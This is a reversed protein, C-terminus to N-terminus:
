YDPFMTSSTGVFSVSSALLVESSSFFSSVSILCSDLSSVSFLEFAVVVSSFSSLEFVASSPLRFDGVSSVSLLAPMTESSTFSEFEFSLFSSLFDLTMSASVSFSSYTDFARM